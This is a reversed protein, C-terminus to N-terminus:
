LVVIKELCGYEAGNKLDTVFDNVRLINEVQHKEMLMVFQKKSEM